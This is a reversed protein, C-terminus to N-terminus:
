VDQEARESRIQAGQEAILGMMFIIVSTSFLLMSMNTFRHEVLFTYAYYGIGMSFLFISVPLFIRLPSFLMCIKMIVLLFKPGDSFIRIKSKGVRKATNIPIYKVSYGARLMCLTITTPYSFGNPLLGVFRRAVSTRMARFGSTLDEIRRGTVYSAFFNYVSNAIGRHIGAQSGKNRAGVVMDFRECNELFREVDEPSHQGDADMCILIDGLAQRIGTKIAAGNGLNCPLDILRVPAGFQRVVHNTTDTSGDSIVLVEYPRSLSDLHRVLRQIVPGIVQEENYAPIIVSFDVRSEFM